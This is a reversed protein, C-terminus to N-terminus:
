QSLSKMFIMLDDDTQGLDQHDYNEAHFNNNGESDSNDVESKDTRTRKATKENDDDYFRKTIGTNTSRAYQQIQEIAVTTITVHQNAQLKLVKAKAKKEKLKSRVVISQSEVQLKWFVNVVTSQKSLPESVEAYFKSIEDLEKKYRNYETRKDTLDGALLRFRLIEQAFARGHKGLLNVANLCEPLLQM